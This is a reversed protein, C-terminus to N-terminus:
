EGSGGLAGGAGADGGAGSWKAPWCRRTARSLQLALLGGTFQESLTLSLQREQLCRAIQAPLGETGEFIMSEGAVKQVEPWMALMADRQEAPGTLKLEIIPMSSRYGM